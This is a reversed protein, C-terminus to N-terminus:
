YFIFKESLLGKLTVEISKKRHRQATHRHLKEMIPKDDTLILGGVYDLDDRFLGEGVTLPFSFPDAFRDRRDFGHTGLSVGNKTAVLIYESIDDMVQQSNIVEVYLGTKVMTRWISKLAIADPADYVSPYHVFAIGDEAMLASLEGFGEITYLNNPQREGASVDLIIVDYRKRCTKIFHRADDITINAEESMGFFKSAVEAMRADIECVDVEFGLRIMENVVNGAGLGVLLVKSGVPKFSSYTALRHVYTWQSRLTPVHMYSQSIYNVFLCRTEKQKYDYVDIQGLLGASSYLSRFFRSKVDQARVAKSNAVGITFIGGICCLMALSKGKRAFRILPLIILALGISLASIRLGIEPIMYFGVIFTFLIGGITSIAYVLGAKRGALQLQDTLKRIIVPSVMGFCVLPPFIVLVSSLVAGIRFDMEILGGMIAPGSIPMMGTLVGAAFLLYYLTSPTCYRESVIGGVYYGITLGMLTVALVSSWVYLSSGFYPAIMQAGILEVAMVAGGEIFSLFLLFGPKEPM